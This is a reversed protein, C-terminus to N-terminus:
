VDGPKLSPFDELNPRHIAPATAELLPSRVANSPWSTVHSLVQSSKIM